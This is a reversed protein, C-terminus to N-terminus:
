VVLLDLFDTVPSTTLRQRDNCADLVMRAKKSAYTRSINQEFKRM